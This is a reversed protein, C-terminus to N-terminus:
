ARVEGALPAVKEILRLVAEQPTADPRGFMRRGTETQRLWARYLGDGSDTILPEWGWPQVMARLREYTPVDVVGTGAYARVPLPRAM